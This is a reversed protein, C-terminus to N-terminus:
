REIVLRRQASKPTTGTWVSEGLWRGSYRNWYAVQFSYSGLARLDFWDNLNIELRYSAGPEIKHFDRPGYPALRRGPFITNQAIPMGSPGMATFDIGCDGLSNIALNVVLPRSTPNKFEIYAAVNAAAAVQPTKFALDVQLSSSDPGTEALPDYSISVLVLGATITSVLSRFRIGSCAMSSEAVSVANLLPLSEAGM